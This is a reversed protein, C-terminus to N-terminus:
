KHYPGKEDYDKKTLTGNEIKRDMMGVLPAVIADDERMYKTKVGEVKCSPGLDQSMRPILNRTLSNGGSVVINKRLLHQVEEPCASVSQEVVESIGAQNLGIDSPHFYLEPVVFRESCFNVLQVNSLDKSEDEASIIYGKLVDHFNPLVYKLRIDAADKFSGMSRELDKRFDLSVYCVNRRALEMVHTDDLLNFQRYSVLEKLYNTLLKGGIDLRRIGGAIPVGCVIPTVYTSSYGFDVSLFPKTFYDNATSSSASSAHAYVASEAATVKSRSKFAFHEFIIEDLHAQSELPTFPPETVIIGAINPARPNVKLSDKFVHELIETESDTNVLVGREFPRTYTLDSFRVNGDIRETEDGVLVKSSGKNRVATCNPMRMIKDGLGYKLYGGGIDLSVYM